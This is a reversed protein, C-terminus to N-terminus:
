KLDSNWAPPPASGSMQKQIKMGRESQKLLPQVQDLVAGDFGAGTLLQRAQRAADVPDVTPTARPQRQMYGLEAQRAADFPTGGGSMVSGSGPLAVDPISDRDIGYRKAAKKEAVMQGLESCLVAALEADTKCLKVLGESIFLNNPGRHFLVSEPVGITTFFPEIGTFTNIEIIRQGVEDVRAAVAIDPKPYNAMNPINPDDWGLFKRATAVSDSECGTSALAATVIIALWALPRVM